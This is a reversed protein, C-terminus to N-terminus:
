GHRGPGLWADVSAADELVVWSAGYSRATPHFPRGLWREEALYVVVANFAPTLSEWYAGIDYLAYGKTQSRLTDADCRVMQRYQQVKATAVIPGGGWKVWVLDGTSVRGWPVPRRTVHTQCLIGVELRALPGGVHQRQRIAVHQRM